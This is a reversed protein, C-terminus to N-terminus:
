VTLLAVRRSSTGALHTVERKWQLGHNSFCMGGQLIGNGNEQRLQEEQQSQNERSSRFQGL